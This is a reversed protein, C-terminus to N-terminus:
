FGQRVFAQMIAKDFRVVKGYGTHQIRFNFILDGDAM